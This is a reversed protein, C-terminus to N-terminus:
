LQIQLGFAIQLPQPYLAKVDPDIDLDTHKWIIGLNRAYGYLRVQSVGINRAIKQPVQYSINVDQLRIHDGREVLVESFMYAQDRRLDTREPMSPVSTVLEDGPNQWRALYDLHTLKSPGFLWSYVISERRFWHGGKWMLNFSASISRWTFTNRISGFYPPMSTGVRLLDERTLNNFYMNYDNGLEGDVSVLPSGGGDLGYWPIAYLQDISNGEVVPISSDGLFRMIPTNPEAFYNTVKNTVYSVLMSTEWKAAKDINLTSVEIDIGRTRLDAYNRQNDLNYGNGLGIIGTTPDILDEGILNKSQKFYWEASGFVRRNLISFDIALNVTNVQEWSLDPNGVSGIRASPLRSISNTFGYSIFPLASISRVANGNSGYTVRLKAHDVWNPIFFPEESISWAGGVSWLPVGKNNFDVGFINSADWRVSGSLTYKTYWSYAFNAYYSVFRDVFQRGPSTGNPIRSSILRPRIPFNSNFNIDSIYTLVQDDYGFIRSSGDGINQEHRLEFGALANIEHRGEWAGNYDIQARGYHSTFTTGSRDLIGGLPVPRSGDAQTFRNIENRTFYSEPVHHVRTSNSISQYQYNVEANFGHRLNYRASTNVRIEQSKTVNDNMKLEDLPRFHWDLLGMELAKDIYAFRNNRVIPLADGNEDALRMYVYPNTGALNLISIGNNMMKSKMFNINTSINLKKVPQFDNKASLSIREYDNGILNSSNNDLGASLYYQYNDAGGSINTAYQQNLGQRYLHRGAEKRLDHRNLDELMNHATAADIRGEDLALLIEIAPTNADWDEKGYLGRGFFERELEVVESPPLFRRDYFLDPREMLSVNTNINITPRRSSTGSKTTIVIVGNGARAGWISASAADKLITISEVDNPNINNLNGEYPFNDIVILPETEGRITSLGRIRLNPTSSPVGGLTRPLEYSLGSTVGELRSILDTSVSRNFLQNDIHTFSGTARERPLSQYGTNVLVEDILTNETKLYIDLDIPTDDLPIIQDIYGTYRVLLTDPMSAIPISFYGSGDTVTSFETRILNLTAGVLPEKTNDSYVRGSLQACLQFTVCLGMFLLIYKKM